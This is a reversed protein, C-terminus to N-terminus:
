PRVKKLAAEIQERSVKNPGNIGSFATFIRAPKRSVEVEITETEDLFESLRLTSIGTMGILILLSEADERNGERVAAILSPCALVANALEEDGLHALEDVFSTLTLPKPRSQQETQVRERHLIDECQEATKGDYRKDSLEFQLVLDVLEANAADFGVDGFGNARTAHIAVVEARKAEIATRLEEQSM